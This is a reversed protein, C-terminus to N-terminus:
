HHIFSLPGLHVQIVKSQNARNLDYSLLFHFIKLWQATSGAHRPIILIADIVLSARSRSHQVNHPLPSQTSLPSLVPSPAFILGLRCKQLHGQKLETWINYAVLMLIRSVFHPVEVQSVSSMEPLSISLAYLGDEERKFSQVSAWMAKFDMLSSFFVQIIRQRWVSKILQYATPPFQSVNYEANVTINEPRSSQPQKSSPLSVHSCLM